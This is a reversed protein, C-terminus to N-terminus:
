GARRREGGGGHRTNGPSPQPAHGTPHAGGDRHAGRDAGLDRCQRRSLFLIGHARHADTGKVNQHRRAHEGEHEHARQEHDVCVGEAEEATCFTVHASSLRNDAAIQVMARILAARGAVTFPSRQPVLTPAVLSPQAPRGPLGPPGPIPPTGTAFLLFPSWLPPPRPIDRLLGDM